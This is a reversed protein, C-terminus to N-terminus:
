FVLTVFLKVLLSCLFNFTRDMRCSEPSFKSSNCMILVSFYKLIIFLLNDNLFSIKFSNPTFKCM